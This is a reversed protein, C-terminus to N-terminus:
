LRPTQLLVAGSGAANAMNHNQQQHSIVPTQSHFTSVSSSIASLPVPHLPLAIESPPRPLNVAPPPPAQPRKDVLPQGMTIPQATSVPPRTKSHGKCAVDCSLRRLCAKKLKGQGGYRKQDLCNRCEKCDSLRDFNQCGKCTGCRAKKVMKRKNGATTSSSTSQVTHHANNSAVATPQQQQQALPRQLHNPPSRSSSGNNAPKPLSAPPPPTVMSTKGFNSLAKLLSGETPQAKM